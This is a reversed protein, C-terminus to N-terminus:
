NMTTERIPSANFWAIVQTIALRRPRGNPQASAATTTTTGAILKATALSQAKRRGQAEAAKLTPAANCYAGRSGLYETDPWRAKAPRGPRLTAKNSPEALVHVPRKEEVTGKKQAEFVCSIENLPGCLRGGLAIWRVINLVASVRAKADGERHG